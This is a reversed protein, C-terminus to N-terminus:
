NWHNGYFKLLKTMNNIFKYINRDLKYDRELNKMKEYKVQEEHIM